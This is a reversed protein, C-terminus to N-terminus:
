YIKLWPHGVKVSQVPTVSDCRFFITVWVQKGASSLETQEKSEFQNQEFDVERLTYWPKSRLAEYAINM